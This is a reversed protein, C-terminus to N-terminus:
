TASRVVQTFFWALTAAGLTLLAILALEGAEFARGRRGVERRVRARNWGLFIPLALMGAPVNWPFDYGGILLRPM